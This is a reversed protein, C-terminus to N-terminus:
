LNKHYRNAYETLATKESVRPAEEPSYLEEISQTGRSTVINARALRIAHIDRGYYGTDFARVIDGCCHPCLCQFVNEIDCEDMWWHGEECMHITLPYGMEGSLPPNNHIAQLGHEIHVNFRRRLCMWEPDDLWPKRKKGPIPGAVPTPGFLDFQDPNTKKM